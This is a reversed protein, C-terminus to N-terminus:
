TYAMAGVLFHVLQKGTEVAATAGAGKIASFHQLQAGEIRQVLREVQFVCVESIQRPFAAPFYEILGGADHIVFMTSGDALFKAGVFDGRHQFLIENQEGPLVNVVAPPDGSLEEKRISM